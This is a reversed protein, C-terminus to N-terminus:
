AGNGLLVSVTGSNLNAVALDPKGDGSVDGIAVSQPGNGAGYDVKAVFTGDGNGLLVSVTSSGSNAVALDPKGDGSVDGIAVSQPSNGTGYDVKAVFTGDGNGLLVSVSNSSSNAVALDPKGDGNVDGIVVSVPQTGVEFQAAPFLAGGFGRDVTGGLLSVCIVLALVPMPMWPSRSRAFPPNNLLASHMSRTGRRPPGRM